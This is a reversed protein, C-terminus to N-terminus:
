KTAKNRTRRPTSDLWTAIQRTKKLINTRLSVVVLFRYRGRMKMQEGVNCFSQVRCKVLRLSFEFM